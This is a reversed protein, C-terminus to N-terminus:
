VELSAVPTFRWVDSYDEHPNYEANGAIVLLSGDVELVPMGGRAKMAPPFEGVQRWESGDETAWVDAFSKFMLNVGSQGGLLYTKGGATALAVYDRGSEDNWKASRQEWSKGGDPSAWVDTLAPAMYGGNPFGGILLLEGQSTAVATTAYRPCWAETGNFAMEWDKGNASTWVENTAGMTGGLTGGAIVMKDGLVTFAFGERPSWQASATVLDWTSGANCSKWVDNFSWQESGGTANTKTTTGGVIYSCSQFHMLGHRHRGEWPAAAQQEWTHGGDKSSWVDNLHSNDAVAIGGALVITGDEAVAAGFHGRAPFSANSLLEWQADGAHVAAVSLFGLGLSTM